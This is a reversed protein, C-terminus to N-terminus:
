WGDVRLTLFQETLEDIRDSTGDFIPPRPFIHHRHDSVDHETLTWHVPMPDPDSLGRIKAEEEWQLHVSEALTEVAHERQKRALCRGQLRTAPCISVWRLCSCPPLM